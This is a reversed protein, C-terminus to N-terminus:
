KGTIFSRDSEPLRPCSIGGMFAFVAEPDHEKLARVLNSAHLDGSAEGAVIFYRM